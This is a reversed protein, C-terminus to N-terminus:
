EFILEDVTVFEFGQETLEDIIKLAAAVSSASADHLLIIDNEKVNKVVKEVIKSSSGSCWDLPDVNWLVVVMDETCKSDKPTNGFPPRLYEPYEGTIKFIIENTKSIENKADTLSLTALNVHSYSHNGIIHGEDHIRKVIEPYSEAQKGLLFFTAKVNRKKLGDLLKETYDPSPGDDFTLAVKKIKEDERSRETKVGESQVFILRGDEKIKKLEITLIQFVLVTVLLLNVCLLVKAAKKM